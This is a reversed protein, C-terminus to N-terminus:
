PIQPNLRDGNNCYANFCAQLCRLRFPYYPQDEEDDPRSKNVWIEIRCAGPRAQFIFEELLKLRVFLKSVFQIPIKASIIQFDRLNKLKLFHDFEVNELHPGIWLKKLSQVSSLQEYFERKLSMDLHEISLLRVNSRKIHEILVRQESETIKLDRFLRIYLILNSQFKEFFDRPILNGYKLLTHIDLDFYWPITGLLKSYNQVAYEIFEPQLGGYGLNGPFGLISEYIKGCTPLQENFGCIFMEPRDRDLQKRQDFIQRVVQLDDANLPFVELRTLSKFDNLMFDSTIKQCILTKLNKLRSLKPQFTNCELHKVMLPFRFVIQSYDVWFTVSSLNPTDLELYDPTACGLSLKELSSSSLTRLKIKGSENVILVKLKSLLHVEELFQDIKEGIKYLCVKQLNRFFETRLDFPRSTKLDFKLHIIDEDAIRQDPWCWSQGYPYDHTYICVNQQTCFTEVIFKFKKCILKLRFKEQISLFDLIEKLILVPLDDMKSQKVIPEFEILFNFFIVNLDSFIGVSCILVLIDNLLAKRLTYVKLYVM